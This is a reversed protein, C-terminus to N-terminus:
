PPATMQRQRNLTLPSLCSLCCVTSICLRTYITFNFDCFSAFRRSASLFNCGLELKMHFISQEARCRLQMKRSLSTLHYFAERQYPDNLHQSTLSLVSLPFSMLLFGGCTSKHLTCVCLKTDSVAHPCVYDEQKRSAKMPVKNKEETNSPCRQVASLTQESYAQPSKRRYLCCSTFVGFM